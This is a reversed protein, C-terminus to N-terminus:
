SLLKSPFTENWKVLNTLKDAVNKVNKKMFDRNLM